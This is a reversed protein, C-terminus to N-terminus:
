MPQVLECLFKRVSYYGLLITCRYSFLATNSQFDAAAQQFFDLKIQPVRALIFILGVDPVHHTNVLSLQPKTGSKDQRVTLKWILM